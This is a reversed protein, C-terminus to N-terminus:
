DKSHLAKIIGQVGGAGVGLKLGALVGGSLTVLTVKDANAAADVLGIGLALGIVVLAKVRPTLDVLADSIFPLKVGAKGQLAFFVLWFGAQLALLWHGAALAALGEQMLVDGGVTPVTLAMVALIAVM